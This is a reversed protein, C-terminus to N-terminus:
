RIIVLEKRNITQIICVLLYQIWGQFEGGAMNLEITAYLHPIKERYNFTEKSEQALSSVTTIVMASLITIIRKM